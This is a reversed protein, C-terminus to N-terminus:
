VTERCLACRTSRRAQSFLSPSSRWGCGLGLDNGQVARLAELLAGALVPQARAAGAAPLARARRVRDRLPGAVDADAAAGKHAGAGAGRLRGEETVALRVNSRMGYSAIFLLLMM